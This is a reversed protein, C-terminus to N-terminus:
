RRPRLRFLLKGGVERVGPHSIGVVMAILGAATQAIMNWPAPLHSAVGAFETGPVGILVFVLAGAISTVWSPAQVWPQKDEVTEVKGEGPLKIPEAM